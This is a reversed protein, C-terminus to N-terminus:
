HYDTIEVDYTDGGRWCFCVRFQDNIRISYQGSRDGKLVELRNGPPVRLDDLTVAADLYELKRRATRAINVFRRIRRANFLAETDKSAFTKIVVTDYVSIRYAVFLLTLDIGLFFTHGNCSGPKKLPNVGVVRKVHDGIHRFL